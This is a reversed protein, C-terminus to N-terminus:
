RYACSCRARAMRGSPGQRADHAFIFVACTKARAHASRRQPKQRTLIQVKAGPLPLISVETGLIRQLEDVDAEKPVWVVCCRGEDESYGKERGAARSALVRWQAAPSGSTTDAHWRGRRSSFKGLQPILIRIVIWSSSEVIQRGPTAVNTDQAVGPSGPATVNVTSLSPIPSSTHEAHIHESVTSAAPRIISLLVQAVASLCLDGMTKPPSRSTRWIGREGMRMGDHAGVCSIAEVLKGHQMLLLMEAGVNMDFRQICVVNSDHATGKACAREDAQMDRNSKGSVPAILESLVQLFAAPDEDRGYPVPVLVVGATILLWLHDSPQRAVTEYFRRLLGRWNQQDGTRCPLTRGFLARWVSGEEALQVLLRSVCALRGIDRTQLFSVTRVILDWPLLDLLM